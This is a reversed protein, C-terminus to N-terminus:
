HVSANLTIQQTLRQFNMQMNLLRLALYTNTSLVEVSHNTRNWVDGFPM